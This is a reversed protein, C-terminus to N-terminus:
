EPGLDRRPSSSLGRPKGTTKRTPKATSKKAPSAPATAHPKAASKATDLSGVNEGRDEAALKLRGLGERVTARGPDAEDAAALHLAAEDLDGRVLAHAGLAEFTDALLRLREQVRSSQPDLGRAAVLHALATDAGGSLEGRSISRDAAALHVELGAGAM